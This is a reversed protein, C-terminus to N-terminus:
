DTLLLSYVTGLLHLEESQKRIRGAKLGSVPIRHWDLDTHVDWLILGDPPAPKIKNTCVGSLYRRLEEITLTGESIQLLSAAICRVMHWLFSQATVELRCGNEDLIIAIGDITRIPSKGPEIRAFCQFNHKGVFEAAADRMAPVNQPPRSFYYRYTRSTVDHRPSFSDPVFAWATVWIDPPLQGNLARIARDPVSTSLALIQCRAHVGRDTRGSLAVRAENRNQIIGARMCAAVIEGEVTRQDPQYQSGFFSSGIYGIRFALRVQSTQGPDEAM